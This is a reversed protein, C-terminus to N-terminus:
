PTPGCTTFTGIWFACPTKLCRKGASSRINTHPPTAAMPCSAASIHSRAWPQAFREESTLHSMDAWTDFPEVFASINVRDRTWGLQAVDERLWLQLAQTPVTKVREVMTRWRRIRAILERCVFPLAGVGVALVVLDFDRGVQLVKREAKRRDWHSEFRVGERELDAGDVLQDWDPQSPWCPLGQVDVLPQYSHGNEIRAQVDFELARVHPRAAADRGPGGLRVNELRHFFEFNVGRRSLVEYFPAFVVDGM